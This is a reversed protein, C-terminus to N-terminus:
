EEMIYLRQQEIRHEGQISCQLAVYREIAEIHKTTIREGKVLLPIGPPYPVIYEASKRGIAESFSALTCPGDEYPELVTVEDTYDLM